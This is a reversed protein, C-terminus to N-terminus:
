NQARHQLKIALLAFLRGLNVKTSYTKAKTDQLFLQAEPQIDFLSTLFDQCVLAHNTKARRLPNPSLLLIIPFVM